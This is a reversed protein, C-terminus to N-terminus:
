SKKMLLNYITEKIFLFYFLVVQGVIPGCVMPLTMKKKKADNSCSCIQSM